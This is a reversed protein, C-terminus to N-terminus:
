RRRRTRMLVVGLGAALLAWAQPEPVAATASVDINARLDYWGIQQADALDLVFSLQGNQSGAGGLLQTSWLSRQESFSAGSDFNGLNLTLTAQAFTEGQDDFPAAVSLQYDILVTVQTTASATFAGAQQLWASASHPQAVLPNLPDFVHRTASASLSSSGASGAQLAAAAHATATALSQDSWALLPVPEQLSNGGLGGAERSETFAAQYAFGDLWQLTAGGTTIWQLQTVQLTASADVARAPVSALLAAAGILLTAARLPQKSFLNM